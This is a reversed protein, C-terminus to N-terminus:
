PSPPTDLTPITGLDRISTELELTMTQPPGGGATRRAEVHVNVALRVATIEDLWVDGRASTVAWTPRRGRSGTPTDADPPAAVQLSHRWAKRGERTSGDKEDVLALQGRVVSFAADWPDWTQALQVRFPEADPQRVTPSADGLWAVGGRVLVSRVIRGNRTRASSWQDPDGWRLVSTEVDPAAAASGEVQVTRRLTSDQVLAGLSALSGFTVNDAGAAMTRAEARSTPADGSTSCAVLAAILFATM